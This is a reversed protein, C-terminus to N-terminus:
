KRQRPVNDFMAKGQRHGVARVSAVRTKAESQPPLRKLTLDLHSQICAFPDQQFERLAIVKKFQKLEKVFFDHRRASPLNQTTICSNDRRNGSLRAVATEANGVIKAELTTPKRGRRADLPEAPRSVFIKVARRKTATSYNNDGNAAAALLPPGSITKKKIRDKGNKGTERKAFSRKLLV